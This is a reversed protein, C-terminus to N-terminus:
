QNDEMDHRESNVENRIRCPESNVSNGM